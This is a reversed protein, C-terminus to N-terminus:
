ECGGSVGYGSIGKEADICAVNGARMVHTKAARRGIKGSCM